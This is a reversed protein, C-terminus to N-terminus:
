WHNISTFWVILSSIFGGLHGFHLAFVASLPLIVVSSMLTVASFKIYWEQDYKDCTDETGIFFRDDSPRRQLLYSHRDRANNLQLSTVLGCHTQQTVGLGEKWVDVWSTTKLFEGWGQFSKWRNWENKYCKILLKMTQSKVFGINCTM